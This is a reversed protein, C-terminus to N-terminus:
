DISPLCFKRHFVPSHTHNGAGRSPVPGVQSILACLQLFREQGITGKMRNVDVHLWQLNEIEDSGGMSRPVIHDLVATNPDLPINSLACRYQQSELIVVLDAASVKKNKRQSETTSHCERSEEDMCGKEGPTEQVSANGERCAYMGEMNIGSAGEHKSSKPEKEKAIESSFNGESEVPRATEDFVSQDYM